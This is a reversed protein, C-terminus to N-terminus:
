TNPQVDRQIASAAKDQWEIMLQLAVEEGVTARLKEMHRAMNEMRRTIIEHQATGLAIGYVASKGAEYEQEIQQMLLAVESANNM